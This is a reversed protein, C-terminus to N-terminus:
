RELCGVRVSAPLTGDLYVLYDRLELGGGGSGERWAEVAYVAGVVREGRQLGRHLRHGVLFRPILEGAREGGHLRQPLEEGRVLHEVAVGGVVLPEGLDVLRDLWGLHGVRQQPM